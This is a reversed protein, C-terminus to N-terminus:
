MQQNPKETSSGHDHDNYIDRDDAMSRTGDTINGDASLNGTCHVLPANLTIIEPATVTTTGGATIALDGGFSVTAGQAVTINLLGGLTVNGNGIINVTLNGGITVAGSGVVELNDDAAVHVRRTGDKELKEWTGSQQRHMRPADAKTAAQIANSPPALCGLVVPDRLNGDIFGILVMDDKEPTWAEGNTRNLKPYLLPVNCLKSSYTVPGTPDYIFCDVVTRELGASEQFFKISEIVGRVM